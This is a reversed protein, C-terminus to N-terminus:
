WFWRAVVPHKGSWSMSGVTFSIAAQSRVLALARDIAPVPLDDVTQMDLLDARDAGEFRDLESVADPFLERRSAGFLLIGGVSPVERNAARKTVGLGTRIDAGTACGGFLGLQSRVV